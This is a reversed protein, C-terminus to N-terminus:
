LLLDQATLKSFDPKHKLPIIDAEESYWHYGIAFLSILTDFAKVAETFRVARIVMILDDIGYRLFYLATNSDFDMIKRTAPLKAGVKKYYDRAEDATQFTGGITMGLRQEYVPVFGSIIYYNYKATM